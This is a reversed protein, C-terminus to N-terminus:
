AAWRITAEESDIAYIMPCGISVTMLAVRAIKPLAIWADGNTWRRMATGEREVTWWGKTLGPHDVPMDWVDGDHTLVVRTVAVGLRRGDELWPRALAPPQARSMLRVTETNAPLAFVVASSSAHIPKISRGDALLHIEPDSSVHHRPVLRGSAVARDALKRWVPRVRAEDCAFPECSGAERTPLDADEMTTPHLLPVGSNAFFSRNGTDLYSEAPLGDAILIAHVDLEVHYYDVSELGSDVYITAGNVLQRAVILYDDLFIAHNQSVRLDRAPTNDAVAGARIVVPRFKDRNPHRILDLSRHGIWKVRHPDGNRTLVYEGARLTEIAREGDPCAIMTGKVYCIPFTDSTFGNLNQGITISGNNTFLFFEGGREAIPGLLASEYGVYTYTGGYLADVDLDSFTVEFTEGVSVVGDNVAEVSSSASNAILADVKGTVSNGNPDLEYLFDALFTAM